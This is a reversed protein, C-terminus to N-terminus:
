IFPTGGGPRSEGDITQRRARVHGPLNAAFQLPRLSLHSVSCLPFFFLRAFLQLAFHLLPCFKLLLERFNADVGCDEVTDRWDRGRLGAEVDPRPDARCPHKM